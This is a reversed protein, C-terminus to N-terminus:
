NIHIQKIKHKSTQKLKTLNAQHLETQIKTEKKYNLKTQNIKQQERKKKLKILKKCDFPIEDTCIHAQRTWSHGHCDACLLALIYVTYIKDDLLKNIHM